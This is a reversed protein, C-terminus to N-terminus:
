QIIKLFISLVIAILVIHVGLPTGKMTGDTVSVVTGNPHAVCCSEMQCCAPVCKGPATTCTSNLQYCCDGPCTSPTEPFSCVGDGCFEVQSMDITRSKTVSQRLSSATVCCGKFCDIWRWCLGPLTGLSSSCKKSCAAQSECNDCNFLYKQLGGGVPVGCPDCYDGSSGGEYTHGDCTNPNSDNCNNCCAYQHVGSTGGLYYATCFAPKNEGPTAATWYQCRCQNFEIKYDSCVCRTNTGPDGCRMPKSSIPVCRDNADPEVVWSIVGGTDGSATCTGLFRDYECDAIDKDVFDGKSCTGTTPNCNQHCPVLRKSIKGTTEDVEESASTCAAVALVLVILNTWTEAM